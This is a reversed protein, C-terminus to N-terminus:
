DLSIEIESNELSKLFQKTEYKVFKNSNYEM